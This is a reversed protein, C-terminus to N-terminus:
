EPAPGLQVDQSWHFVSVGHGDVASLVGIAHAPGETFQNPGSAEVEVMWEDAPPDFSARSATGVAQGRQVLTVVVSVGIEGNWELEGCAEAVGDTLKIPTDFNSHM